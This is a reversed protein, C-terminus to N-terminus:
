YTSPLPHSLGQALLSCRAARTRQGAATWPWSPVVPPSGYPAPQPLLVDPEASAQGGVSVLNVSTLRVLGGILM